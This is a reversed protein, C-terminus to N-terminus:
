IIMGQAARDRVLFKEVVVFLPQMKVKSQGDM